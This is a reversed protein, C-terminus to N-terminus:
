SLCCKKYKKGSGCPCPENRGIKQRSLKTGHPKHSAILQHYDSLDEPQDPEVAAIIKWGHDDCFEIIDEAKEHSRVRVWAPNENTGIQPM